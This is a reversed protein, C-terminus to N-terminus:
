FGQSLWKERYGACHLRPAKCLCPSCACRGTLPGM